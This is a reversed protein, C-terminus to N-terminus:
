QIRYKIFTKYIIWVYSIIAILWVLSIYRLFFESFYVGLLIGLAVLCTKFWAYDWVNYKRAASLVGEILNKV